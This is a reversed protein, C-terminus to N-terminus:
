TNQKDMEHKDKKTVLFVGYFYSVILVLVIGTRVGGAGFLISLLVVTKIIDSILKKNM